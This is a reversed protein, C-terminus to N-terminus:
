WYKWFVFYNAFYNQNIQNWYHLEVSFILLHLLGFHFILLGVDIEVDVKNPCLVLEKCQVFVRTLLILILIFQLKLHICFAGIQNGSIKMNNLEKSIQIVYNPTIKDLSGTPTCEKILKPSNHPVIPRFCLFLITLWDKQLPSSMAMSSVLLM